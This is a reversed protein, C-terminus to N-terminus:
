DNTCPLRLAAALDRRSAVIMGKGHEVDVCMMHLPRSFLPIM